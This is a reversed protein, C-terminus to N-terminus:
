TATMIYGYNNCSSDDYHGVLTGLNNMGAGSTQFAGPFDIQKYFGNPFRQFGHENNSTDWFHGSVIGEDNVGLPVTGSVSGVCPASGPTSSAGPFDVKTIQGNPSRLYGRNNGSADVYIGTSYGFDNVAYCSTNTSGDVSFVRTRGYSSIFARYEFEPPTGGVWGCVQQGLDSIGALASTTGAPQDPINFTTFHNNNFFYGSFQLAATDYFQGVVTGQDNITFGRTFSPTSDDGPDKYFTVKGTVSRLYAKTNNSADVIYGSIVGEDNISEVDLAVAGPVSFSFFRADASAGSGIVITLGSAALIGIGGWIM